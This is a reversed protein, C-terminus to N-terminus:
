GNVLQWHMGFALLTAVIASVVLFVFGIKRTKKIQWWMVVGSLGWFCMSAFMMDVAIAWFWRSNAQVDYGHATHLRLLFSRASMERPQQGVISLRSKYVPQSTESDADDAEDDDVM